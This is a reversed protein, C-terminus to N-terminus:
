AALAYFMEALSQKEGVLTKMQRKKIMTMEEM